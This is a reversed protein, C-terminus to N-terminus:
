LDFYSSLQASPLCDTLYLAFYISDSINLDESYVLGYYCLIHKSTYM